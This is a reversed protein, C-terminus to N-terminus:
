IDLTGLFYFKLPCASSVGLFRLLLLVFGILRKFIFNTLINGLM